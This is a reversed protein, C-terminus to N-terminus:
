QQAPDISLVSSTADWGAQYGFLGAIFRAPLYTYGGKNLPAVGMAQVTKDTGGADIQYITDDGIKLYYVAGNQDPPLVVASSAADWHMDATSLGFSSALYRVPVYVRGDQLFPSVGADMQYVQGNVSYASSGVTFRAHNLQLPAPAPASNVGIAVSYTKAPPTSKKWSRSYVLNLQATGAGAARFVWHEGGGSGIARSQSIYFHSTEVLVNQDPTEALSWSFGTTPNGPLFLEMIAGRDLAVTQNNNDENLQLADARAPLLGGSVLILATLATLLLRWSKM